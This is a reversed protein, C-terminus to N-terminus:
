NVPKLSLWDFDSDLMILKANESVRNTESKSLKMVTKELKSKYFKQTLGKCATKGNRMYFLAKVQRKEDTSKLSLELATLRNWPKAVAQWWKKAKEISLTRILKRKETEDLKDTNNRNTQIGYYDPFTKSIFGILEEAPLHIGSFGFNNFTLEELLWGARVCINDIDYDIIQGHGYYKEAGPFILDGTNELKNVRCDDMIRLIEPISESGLNEIKEKAALVVPWDSSLFEGMLQKIPEGKVNGFLNQALLCLALYLVSKKM